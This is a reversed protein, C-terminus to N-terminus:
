RAYLRIYVNILFLAFANLKDMKCLLNRPEEYQLALQLCLLVIHSNRDYITEFWFLFSLLRL